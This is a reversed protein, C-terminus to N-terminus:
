EVSFDPEQEGQSLATLQQHVYSALVGVVKDSDLGLDAAIYPAFKSPFSLWADRAARAAEFFVREAAALDIVAGEKQEYELKQLLALYNEKVRRAEDFSMEAGLAAVVKAAAVAPADDASVGLGPPSAGGAAATKWEDHGAPKRRSPKSRIPKSSPPKSRAPKSAAPKSKQAAATARGDNSNRYRALQADTQEVVVKGESLVLWGRREWKGVAAKTVGRLRAFEAKTVLTM